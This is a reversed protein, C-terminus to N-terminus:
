SLGCEFECAQRCGLERGEGPRSVYVWSNRNQHFWGLLLSLVPPLFGTAEAKCDDHLPPITLVQPDTGGSIVRRSGSAATRRVVM